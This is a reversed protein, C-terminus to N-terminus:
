SQTVVNYIAIMQDDQTKDVEDFVQFAKGKIAKIKDASELQKWHRLHVHYLAETGITKCVRSSYGRVNKM